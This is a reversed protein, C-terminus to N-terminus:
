QRDTEKWPGLTSEEGQGSALFWIQDHIKSQGIFCEHGLIDELTHVVGTTSMCEWVEIAVM